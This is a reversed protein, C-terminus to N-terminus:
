WSISLTTTQGSYKIENMKMKKEFFLFFIFSFFLFFFFSFIIGLAFHSQYGQKCQLGYLTQVRERKDKKQSFLANIGDTFQPSETAPYSNGIITVAIV